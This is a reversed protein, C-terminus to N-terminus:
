HALYCLNCDVKGMCKLIIFERGKGVNDGDEFCGIDQVRVYWASVGWLSTDTEM